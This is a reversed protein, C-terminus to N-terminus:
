ALDRVRYKVTAAMSERGWCNGSGRWMAGVWQSICGVLVYIHKSGQQKPNFTIACLPSIITRSVDTAFKLCILAHTIM